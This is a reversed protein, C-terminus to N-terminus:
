HATIWHWVEAGGFSEGGDLFRHPAWFDRPDRQLELWRQGREDEGMTFHTVNPEERLDFFLELHDGDIRYTLSETSWDDFDGEHYWGIGRGDLAPANLQYMHFGAGGTAFNRYDIWIRGGPDDSSMALPEVRSMGQREKKYRAGPEKPDGDITLWEDGSADREIRFPLSYLQGTKRFYLELRDDVIRYDFSNTTNLGVRGYRYLGKGDGHFYWFRLPGGEAKREFRSWLGTLADREIPAAESRAAESAEVAPDDLLSSIGAACLALVFGGQVCTRVVGM